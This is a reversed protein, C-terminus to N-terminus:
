EDQLNLAKRLLIEFTKESPYPMKSNVFNGKDDLLIFRPITEANYESYFKMMDNVHLQLVSKSKSQAKIFWSEKKQDVSLAVFQIPKNKFKLALNEFYYSQEECPICWTAWVDIIAYKGKLDNSTFPKGKLTVAEFAPAAMGRRLSYLSEFKAVLINVYKQNSFLQGNAVILQKSKEDADGVQISKDLQWFLMKDKFSGKPLASIAQLRKTDIDVDRNGKKILQEIVYKFYSEESLLGEDTLSLQKKLAKIEKTEPTQEDSALTRRKELFQEWYNLYTITVLKKDRDTYDTRSIYNDVTKGSSKDKTRDKWEKYVEKAFQDPKELYANDKLYWEVRSWDGFIGSKLEQNEALRTGTVKTEAANNFFKVKLHVSDNKGVVLQQRFSHDFEIDYKDLPINNKAEYHFKGDVVPIKAVTDRIMKDFLVIQRIPVDSEINGTIVTKYYPAMQNPRLFYIVIGGVIIIVALARLLLKGNSFFALKFRKFEFWQFGLALLLIAAFLSVYDTYTFWYGLDSGDKYSNVRNLIEYPYWNPLYELAKLISTIIFFFFGILMSWIFSPMLVAIVFQFATIFLSAVFLRTFLHIIYIVPLSTDAVKPVDKILTGIYGCLISFGILSLIVISNAILIVLFKSFYISVKQLPQTEMLQWGGNKHDLQTVRSVTIIIVLPFLFPTFLMLCNSIFGQIYNYPLAVQDNPNKILMTVLFFLLPAVAGVIAATVYLGTGKKKIHEAAFAAIFNKM